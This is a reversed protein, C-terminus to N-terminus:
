SVSSLRKIVGEFIKSLPAEIHLQEGTVPHPLDVSFAHLLFRHIKFEQRFVRNYQKLGYLEDLMLPHHIAAFHRRIQHHRGTDIEAEVYSSNAFERLVRYRTLAPVAGEGRSPLPVRIEGADRPLRGVVLARYVKRWGAFKSTRVAEFARKTRAFIVV